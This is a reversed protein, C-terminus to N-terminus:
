RTAAEDSIAAIVAEAVVSPPCRRPVRVALLRAQTALDALLDFRHSMREATPGSHLSHPLLVAVTADLAEVTTREHDGRDLVVVAGVPAPETAAGAVAVWQEGDLDAIVRGVDVATTGDPLTPPLNMLAPGPHAIVVGADSRELCLVDDCFFRHGDLVLRAVLTSKGGGQQATVAVVAGDIVVAGAHLAEYGHVLAATGIASDLLFRRWASDDVSAPACLLARRPGSSLHFRARDGYDIRFDGAAGRETLYRQGDGLVTDRVAPPVSPGSFAAAVEEPDALRVELDVEDVPAPSPTALEPLEFTSRLRLGFM